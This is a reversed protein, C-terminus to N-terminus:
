SKPQGINNRTWKALEQDRKEYGHYNLTEALEDRTFMKPTLPAVSGADNLMAYLEAAARAAVRLASVPWIVIKVGFSEFEAASFYPTLGFETMNALIPADIESAFRRFSEGDTLAEAFIIDAGAERYLRAREIARDVGEVAAADTRAVIMADRRAIAAANVRAAMEGATVLSKGGLHGCKKPSSQDEIQIAAAGAAELERVTRTVSLVSGFGTDADVILPLGSSRAVIRTFFAVEDLTTLELDPLGLAGSLGAGSLYLAKFGARRAIRAFLGNPAGPVKLVGPSNILDRLRAGPRFDPTDDILWAM